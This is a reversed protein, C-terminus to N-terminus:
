SFCIKVHGGHLVPTHTGLYPVVPCTRAFFLLLSKSVSHTVPHPPPPATSETFQCVPTTTRSASSISSVAELIHNVVASSVLNPPISVHASTFVISVTDSVVSISKAMVARSRVAVIREPEISSVLSSVETFAERSRASV